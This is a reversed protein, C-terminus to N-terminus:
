MTVFSPDLEQFLTDWDLATLDVSTDLTEWSLDFFPIAMDFIQGESGPDPEGAPFAPPEAALATQIKSNGKFRSTPQIDASVFPINYRRLISYFSELIREAFPSQDKAEELIGFADFIEMRRVRDDEVRASKSLCLDMLLVIIAMCVCHLIGSSKLRMLVFPLSETSLQRETRIVMRAAELCADRSYSYKPDTADSMKSDIDKIRQYDPTTTGMTAFPESDTLERCLEGLRIRQLCYSMSTPQDISQGVAGMGDFLDEDNMNLPKRTAMQRPHITYVGKQPGAFQSFQWDTGVLNWWVRRAVEAEVSEPKPVDLDGNEPHDIRHLSLQRAISTASGFWFHAQSTIGVINCILYGIIISAQVDEISDAGARRSYELLELTRRLWKPTQENAEEVSSFLPRDIDRETWFFTTSSIIALLLAAYGLKIPDKRDLCSYIDDVAARVSPAHVVHHLHTIDTLYKDVIQRSEEHLPLWCCRTATSQNTNPGDAAASDIPCAKLEMDYPLLTHTSSPQTIAEELWGVDSEPSRHTSEVRSKILKQAFLAHSPPSGTQNSAPSGRHGIVVEELRRLRALVDSEFSKSSSPPAEESRDTAATLEDDQRCPVGRAVPLFPLFGPAVALIEISEERSADHSCDLWIFKIKSANMKSISEMTEWIWEKAWDVPSAPRSSIWRARRCVCTSSWLGM